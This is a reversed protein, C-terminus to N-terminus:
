IQTGRHSHYKWWCCILAVGLDFRLEELNPGLKETDFGFEDLDFGFEELDFRLGEM